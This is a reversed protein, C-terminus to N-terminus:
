RRAPPLRDERAPADPHQPTGIAQWAPGLDRLEVEICEVDLRIAGGDAFQLIIRGGPPDNPEFSIALLSTVASKNKLDIGHVKAGLVREFRLAARRRAYRKDRDAEKALADIWDFRNALAAFRRAGPLFALTVDKVVERGGPYVKSLGKMVYIYQYSAM